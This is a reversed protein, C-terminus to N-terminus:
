NNKLVYAMNGDKNEVKICGTWPQATMGTPMIGLCKGHGGLNNTKACTDIAQDMSMGVWGSPTNMLFLGNGTTVTCTPNISKLYKTGNPTRFLDNQQTMPQTMPQVVPQVTPRIIPQASSVVSPLLTSPVSSSVAPTVSPLSINDSNTHVVSPQSETLIVPASATTTATSSKRTSFYIITIISSIVLLLVIVLIVVYKKEM